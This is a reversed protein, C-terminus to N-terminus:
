KLDITPEGKLYGLSILFNDSELLTKEFYPSKNFFGHKQNKYLILDCRSNVKEMKDKFREAIEIPILKDKTGLFIITSPAGKKINHIPSIELYREKVRSYGYGNKGIDIVPNFLLLANPKSSFTLDENKHELGEINGAVAVLHGGASGGGAIIKDPNLGLTVANKRLFRIASKADRVADFLTTRHLNNVRYEGLVAVLGRTAFYKAHPEFQKLNANKWDGGHFLIVASYLSDKKMKEPFFFRLQLDVTDIKKFSLIKSPVSLESANTKKVQKSYCSSFFCFLLVFIFLKTKFM